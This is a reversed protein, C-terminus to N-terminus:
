RYSERMFLLPRDDSQEGFVATGYPNQRLGDGNFDYCLWHEGCEEGPDNDSTDADLLWRLTARGSNPNDAGDYGPATLSILAYGPAQAIGGVSTEGADLNGSYQALEVDSSLVLTGM